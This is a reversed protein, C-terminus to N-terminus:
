GPSATHSSPEMGTAFQVFDPLVQTAVGDADAAGARAGDPLEVEDTEVDDFISLGQDRQDSM